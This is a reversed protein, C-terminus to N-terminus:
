TSPQIRFIMWLQYIINKGEADHNRADRDVFYEKRHITVIDFIRKNWEVDLGLSGVSCCNKVCYLINWAHVRFSAEGGAGGVTLYSTPYQKVNQSRCGILCSNIMWRPRVHEQRPPPLLPLWLKMTMPSIVYHPDVLKRWWGKWNIINKMLFNDVRENNIELLYFSWYICQYHLVIVASCLLCM